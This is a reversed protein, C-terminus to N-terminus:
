NKGGSEAPDYTSFKRMLQVVGRFYDDDPHEECYRRLHAKQDEISVSSLNLIPKGADIQATNWGSLYGQVWGFFYTEGREPTIRLMEAFQKCTGTGFGMAAFNDSAKVPSATLVAVSLIVIASRM